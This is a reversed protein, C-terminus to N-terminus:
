ADLERAFREVFMLRRVLSAAERADDREDLATALAALLADREAEVEDRLADRAAEDPADRLEELSERWGMQRMLFDAPMATNSEASVPAGRREALYAGRRVPDRLTRIAENAQAAWQMAVRREADGAAAFRDPHVAGQVRLYAADLADRDIAYREPLGFLEFHSRGIPEM